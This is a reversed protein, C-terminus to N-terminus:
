LNKSANKPPIVTTFALAETLSLNLPCSAAFTNERIPITLLKAGSKAGTKPAAIIWKKGHSPTNIKKVIYASITVKKTYLSKGSLKVYM